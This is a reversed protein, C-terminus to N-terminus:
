ACTPDIRPVIRFCETKRELGLKASARALLAEFAPEDTVGEYVEMYTSPDDRRHMWRGRVGTRSEIAKFLIEVESRFYELRTLDVRYYVFYNTV